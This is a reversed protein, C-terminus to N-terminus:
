FRLMGTLRPELVLSVPNEVSVSLAGLNMGGGAYYGGGLVEWGAVVNWMPASKVVEVELENVRHSLSTVATQATALESKYSDLQKIALEAKALESSREFDETTERVTGNPLTEKSTRRGREYAKAVETHLQLELSQVKATATTAVATARSESLTLAEVQKSWSRERSGWTALVGLVLAAMIYHKKELKM